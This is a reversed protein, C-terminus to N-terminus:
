STSAFQGCSCTNTCDFCFTERLFQQMAEKSDKGEAATQLAIQQNARSRLTSYDVFLEDHESIDRTAVVAVELSLASSGMMFMVNPACSHNFLGLSDYFALGKTPSGIPSEIHHLYLVGLTRCFWNLDLTEVITTDCGVGILFEQLQEHDDKLHEKNEETTDPAALYNLIFNTNDYDELRELCSRYALKYLLPELIYSPPEEKFFAKLSKHFTKMNSMTDANDVCADCPGLTNPRFCHNCNRDLRVNSKPSLWSAMPTSTQLVSGKPYNRTAFIGRGLKGAHNITAGVGRFLLQNLYTAEM